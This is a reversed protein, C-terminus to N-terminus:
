PAAKLYFADDPFVGVTIVKKQVPALPASLDVVVVTGADVHNGECVVLVSKEDPTLLVAHPLRCDAAAFPLSAVKQGTAAEVVTLSDPTQVPVFFYTGDSGFEGFYPAGGMLVPARWTKDVPEFVRLDGSKQDSLWVSGDGPHVAM